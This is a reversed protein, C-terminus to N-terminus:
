HFTPPQPEAAGATVRPLGQQLVGGVTYFSGFVLIRDATTAGAAAAHLAELPNAHTHTAVGPPTKLGAALFAAELQEATAARPIPLDTFHWVDVLPAICGLIGALDKDAMAGFVAHTRPFFGM